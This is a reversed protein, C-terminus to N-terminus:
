VEVTPRYDRIQSVSVDIEDTEIYCITNRPITVDKYYPAVYIKLASGLYNEVLLDTITISGTDYNVNGIKAIGSVITSNIPVIFLSGKFDNAIFCENGDYIFNSSTVTYHLEDPRAIPFGYHLNYSEAMGVMPNLKKYIEVETENSIVSSDSADISTIFDSYLFTPGFRNINADSYESIQNIVLTRISTPSLKTVNINYKVHSVVRMYSFEPEIIVPDLMTRRALFKRYEEKKYDPIGDIDSIDVAVFVKGYMPPTHDEGGYASVANIEPFQTQLLIEYDSPIAAREQVQFHRPAYYKISDISQAIAGGDAYTITEVTPNSTLENANTPDFNIVFNRARNATPGNTIRYDLLITAGNKPKRGIVGDGFYIEFYGNETAQLFYIKSSSTVDLLTQSLTYTEGIVDGDEYVVVVLSTTDVTKNTIRFRQNEASAQFLYSDKLYIGEYVDTEFSFSTNASSVSITEPISFVYSQNKILTTFTHGKEIVYPQSEGTATFEVSLTAKASRASRPVYNLEKAHSLVSDRLQASDLFSEAFLMNMYFVNKSTNHALLDLLVSLNSGDFDYDRFADQDSLYSKLRQKLLDFDLDTLNLSNTPM